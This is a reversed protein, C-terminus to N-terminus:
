LNLNDLSNTMVSIKDNDKTGVKIISNSGNM